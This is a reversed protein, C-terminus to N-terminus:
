MYVRYKNNNYMRTIDLNHKNDPSNTLNGLIALPAIYHTYYVGNRTVFTYQGHIHVNM